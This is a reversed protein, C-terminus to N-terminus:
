SNIIGILLVIFLFFLVLQLAGLFYLGIGFLVLNQWFGNPEFLTDALLYIWTPILCLILVLLSLSTKILIKM